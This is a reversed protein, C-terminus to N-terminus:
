FLNYDPYWTRVNALHMLILSSYKKEMMYYINKLFLKYYLTWTVLLYLACKIRLIYEAASKTFTLKGRIFMELQQIYLPVLEDATYGISLLAAVSAGM